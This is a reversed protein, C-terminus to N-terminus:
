QAVEKYWNDYLYEATVNLKKAMIMFYHTNPFRRNSFYHTMTSEAIDCARAFKSLSGYENKVLFEIYRM